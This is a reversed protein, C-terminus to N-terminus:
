NWIPQTVPQNSGQKLNMDNTFENVLTLLQNMEFPKLLVADLLLRTQNSIVKSGTIGIVPCFVDGEGVLLQNQEASIGFDEDLDLIVLDTPRGNQLRDKLAV